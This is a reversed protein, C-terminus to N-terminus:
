EKKLLININYMVIGTIIIKIMNLPLFYSIDKFRQKENIECSRNYYITLPCRGYFNFVIITLGLVLLHIQHSGFIFSGFYNYCSLIHHGVSLTQNAMTKEKCPESFNQEIGYSLSILLCFFLFKYLM